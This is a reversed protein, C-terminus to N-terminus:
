WEHTRIAKRGFRHAERALRAGLLESFQIFEASPGEQAATLGLIQM